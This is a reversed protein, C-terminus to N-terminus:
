QAICTALAFLMEENSDETAIGDRVVYWGENFSTSPRGM